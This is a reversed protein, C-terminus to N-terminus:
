RSLFKERLVWYKEKSSQAVLPAQAQHPPERFTRPIDVARAPEGLLGRGFSASEAWGRSVDGSPGPSGLFSPQEQYQPDRLEARPTSGTEVVERIPSLPSLCTMLMAPDQTEVHTDVQHDCDHPLIPAEEVEDDEHFDEDEEEEGREDEEEEFEVSTMERVEAVFAAVDASILHDGEVGNEVVPPAEDLVIIEAERRSAAIPGSGTLSGTSAGLEEPFPESGPPRSSAALSVASRSGETQAESGLPGGAAAAVSNGASHVAPSALSGTRSGEDLM